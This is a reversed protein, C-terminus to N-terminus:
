EPRHEYDADMCSSHVFKLFHKTERSVNELGFRDSESAFGRFSTM